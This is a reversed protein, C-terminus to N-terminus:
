RMCAFVPFLGKQNAEGPAYEGGVWVGKGMNGVEMAMSGEGLQGREGEAHEGGEVRVRAHESLGIAATEPGERYWDLKTGCNV